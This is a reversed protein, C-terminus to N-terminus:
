TSSFLSGTYAGAAPELQLDHRACHAVSDTCVGGAIDVGREGSGQMFQYGRSLKLGNTGSVVPTM